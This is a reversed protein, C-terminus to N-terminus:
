CFKLELSVLKPLVGNRLGLTKFFLYIQNISREKSFGHLVYGSLFILAGGRMKCHKVCLECNGHEFSLSKCYNRFIVCAIELVVLGISPKNAQKYEIFICKQASCLYPLSSKFKPCNSCNQGAM